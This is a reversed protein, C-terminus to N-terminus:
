EGSNQWGSPSRSHSHSRGEDALQAGARRLEPPPPPVLAAFRETLELPTRHLEDAATGKAGLKDPRVSGPGYANAFVVRAAAAGIDMHELLPAVQGGYM